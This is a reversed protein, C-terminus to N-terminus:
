ELASQNLIFDYDLQGTAPLDGNYAASSYTYIAMSNAPKLRNIVCEIVSPLPKGDLVEGILADLYTTDDYDVIVDFTFRDWKDSSLEFDLLNLDLLGDETENARRPIVKIDYGTLTKVMAEIDFTRVIPKKQLRLIVQQRREELTQFQHITCPDPLGCSEEWEVILDTTTEINLEGRVYEFYALVQAIMEGISRGLAYDSAGASGFAEWLRGKPLVDNFVLRQCYDVEAESARYVFSKPDTTVYEGGAGILAGDVYVAGLPRYNVVM